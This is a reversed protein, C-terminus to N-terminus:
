YCEHSIRRVIETDGQKIVKYEPHRKLLSLIAERFLGGKQLELTLLLEGKYIHFLARAEYETYM